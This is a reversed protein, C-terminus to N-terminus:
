HNQGSATRTQLFVFSINCLSLVINFRPIFKKHVSHWTLVFPSLGSDLCVGPKVRPLGSEDGAKVRAHEVEFEFSLCRHYFCSQDLM